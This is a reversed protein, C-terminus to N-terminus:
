IVSTPGNAVNIHGHNCLRRFEIFVDILHPTVDRLIQAHTFRAHVNFGGRCLPQSKDSALLANRCM